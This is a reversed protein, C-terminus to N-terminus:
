GIRGVQFASSLSQQFLMFSVLSGASMAGRLVLTGGYFLVAAVVAAALFTNTSMYLGYAVAESCRASRGPHLAHPFNPAREPAPLGLQAYDIARPAPPRESGPRSLSKGSRWWVLVQSWGEPGDVWGKGTLVERKERPGGGDECGM